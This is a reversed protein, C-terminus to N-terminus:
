VNNVSVVRKSVLGTFIQNEGEQLFPLWKMKVSHPSPRAPELRVIEFDNGASMNGIEDARFEKQIPTADGELMWDDNEGDYMVESVTAHSPPTYPVITDQWEGWPAGSVTSLTLSSILSLYYLVNIDMGEFFPHNKLELYSAAVHDSYEAENHGANSSNGNGNFGNTVNRCGLRQYPDRVLLSLIL